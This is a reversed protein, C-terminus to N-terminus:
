LSPPVYLTAYAQWGIYLAIAWIVLAAIKNVTKIWVGNNDIRHLIHGAFALGMFWCWSIVICAIAFALKAYGTYGVSNTGIVIITDIIAHPNLISVSAAFAIQKKASLAKGNSTLKSAPQVWTIYGMYLLFICGACLIILKLWAIEMVLLSVGCIALTILIMDCIAATCISPFAKSLSPQTAGQNFIFINQVGLPLILGFALFIGHLAATFM